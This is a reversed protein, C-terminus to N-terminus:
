HKPIFSQCLEIGSIVDAIAWPLRKCMAGLDRPHLLDKALRKRMTAVMAGLKKKRSSLYDELFMKDLVLRYDEAFRPSEFLFSFKARSLTKPNLINFPLPNSALCDARGRNEGKKTPQSPPFYAELFASTAEEDSLAHLKNLEVFISIMKKIAKKYIYKLREEARKIKAPQAFVQSLESLPQEVGTGLPFTVGTTQETFFSLIMLDQSSLRQLQGLSLHKRDLVATVLEVLRHNAREEAVLSELFIQQDSLSEESSKETDCGLLGSIRKFTHTSAEPGRKYLAPSEQSGREPTSSGHSSLFRDAESQDGDESFSPQRRPREEGLRSTSATTEWDLNFEPIDTDKSEGLLSQRGCFLEEPFFPQGAERPEPTSETSECLEGDLHSLPLLCLAKKLTNPTSFM